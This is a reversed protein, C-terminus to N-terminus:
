RPASGIGAPPWTRCTRLRRRGAARCHRRRTRPRARASRPACRVGRRRSPRAACWARGQSKYARVRAREEPGSGGSPSSNCRGRRVLLPPGVCGVSDDSRGPRGRERQQGGAATAMADERRMGAIASAPAGATRAERAAEAPNPAGRWAPARRTTSRRECFPESLSSRSRTALISSSIVRWARARTPRLSRRAGLGRNAAARPELAACGARAASRGRESVLGTCRSCIAACRSAIARWRAASSACCVSTTCDEELAHESILGGAPSGVRLQLAPAGTRSGVRRRRAAPLARQM